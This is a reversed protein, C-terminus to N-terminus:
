AVSGVVDNYEMYYIDGNEVEIFDREGADCVEYIGNELEFTKGAYENEEVADVFKRDLKWKPHTSIIKAVWSKNKRSGFTTELIAKRNVIEAWAIKLAESLYESVKGGFKGQGERAIEWARTMINKM